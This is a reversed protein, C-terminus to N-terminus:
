CRAEEGAADGGGSELGRGVEAEAGNGKEVGFVVSEVVVNEVACIGATSFGGSSSVWVLDFGVSSRRRRM